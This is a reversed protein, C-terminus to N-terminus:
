EPPMRLNRSSYSIQIFLLVYKNYNSLIHTNPLGDAANKLLGNM